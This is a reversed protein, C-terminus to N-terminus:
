FQAVLLSWSYNFLGTQIMQLRNIIPLVRILSWEGVLRTMTFATTRAGTSKAVATNIKSCSDTRLGGEMLYWPRRFGCTGLNDAMTKTMRFDRWFCRGSINKPRLTLVISFTWPASKLDLSFMQYITSIGLVCKGICDAKPATKM